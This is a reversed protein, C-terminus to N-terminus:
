KHPFFWISQHSEPLPSLGQHILEDVPHIVRLDAVVNTGLSVSSTAPMEVKMAPARRKEEMRQRLEHLKGTHLRMKESADHLKRISADISELCQSFDQYMPRAAERAATLIRQDEREERRLLLAVALCMLTGAIIPILAAGLYFPLMTSGLKTGMFLSGLFSVLPDFFRVMVLVLAAVLIGAPIILLFVPARHKM